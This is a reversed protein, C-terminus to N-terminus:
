ARHPWSRALLPELRYKGDADIDFVGLAQLCAVATDPDDVAMSAATVLDALTVSASDVLTLMSAFAKVLEEDAAVGVADVFAAAGAPSALEDALAALAQGEDNGAAVRAAAQEVLIPWGGTVELLRELREQVSFKESALAWVSLTKRDYRRLTVAGLAPTHGAQRVVTRWLSMQQLGAIIVASRTVGPRQPRQELAATLAAICAEDRPALAVLDTLVVRRQGPQGAVLEEEFQRRSTIAPVTFRNGVDAALRVAQAVDDIGTAPSGLIVRVQNAHDGLVDDIQAATLPSRRGDPLEPRTELAIFEDPVSLTAAGVLQTIVDDKSGIMLLVNPSRLHWGRGDNNPALVGLGVMEQLYARFGEVDLTAFGAEWWGLCEERLEVDSLRADLGSEHAHHALVNAIVNYRPDLHLTDHFAASIDAKLDVDSEVTVVDTYTIVYPPEVNAVDAARRTHMTAVLRWGFMQLLFPQYSCYGLVRNVLDDDAFRYGLSHLPRTLLNAAWQPRLPGIVTPRQALHSFPGNRASKAYRQVSHLGAFVVKIRGDTTLGLEKLRNTQFFEPADSEFFRDTEDLLILMRRRSDEALWRLLGTRVQEHPNNHSPQRRPPTIVGHHALDRLLADWIAEPGIASGARIGVTDLSLYLVVREGPVGQTEFLHGASRLLASKGLGRGGYLLQTGDPDLVSKREADRGYFMEEAVLGRKKSVYPNVNSFPLLVSMTADIQRNGHAALYALAADDLVVVPATRNGMVAHQALERRSQASMTGFYAVLLSDGSNDQDAYSLLLQASPQGWALLVRLRGGLKSGFAPVLAKGSITVDMVDLFRRDHGRPLGDLQHIRNGEIGVVRLAPLLLDRESIQGPHIAVVPPHSLCTVVEMQRQPSVPFRLMTLELRARKFGQDDNACPEALERLRELMGIPRDLQAGSAIWILLTHQPHFQSLHQRHETAQVLRQGAEPQPENQEALGPVRIPFAMGESADTIHM